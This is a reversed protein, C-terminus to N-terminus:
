PFLVSIIRYNDDFYNCNALSEFVMFVEPQLLIKPLPLVSVRQRDQKLNKCSSVFSKYYLM